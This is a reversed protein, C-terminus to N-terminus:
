ATQHLPLLSYTYETSVPKSDRGSKWSHETLIESHL